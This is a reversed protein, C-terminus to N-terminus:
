SPSGVLAVAQPVQSPSNTQLTVSVIVNSATVIPNFAAAATPVLQSVSQASWHMGDPSFAATSTTASGSGSSTLVVVGLPGFAAGDLM